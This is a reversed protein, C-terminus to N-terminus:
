CFASSVLTDSLFISASGESLLGGSTSLSLVGLCSTVLESPFLFECNLVKQQQQNKTKKKKKPSLIETYGQSDQVRYVLSAWSLSGGTETQQASPNFTLVAAVVRLLEPDYPM